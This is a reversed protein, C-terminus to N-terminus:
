RIEFVLLFPITFKINNRVYFFIKQFSFLCKNLFPFYLLQPTLSSMIICKKQIVQKLAESTTGPSGNGDTKDIRELSELCRQLTGIYFCIHIKTIWPLLSFFFGAHFSSFKFNSKWVADKTKFFYYM